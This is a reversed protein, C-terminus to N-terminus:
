TYITPLYPLYTSLYISLLCSPAQIRQEEGGARQQHGGPLPLRVPLAHPQPPRALVPGPHDPGTGPPTVGAGAGPSAAVQIWPIYAGMNLLRRVLECLAPGLVPDGVWAQCEPVGFVGQHPSGFTVLNRPLHPTIDVCRCLISIDVQCAPQPLAAGTRPVDSRGPTLIIM